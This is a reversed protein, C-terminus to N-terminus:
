SSCSYTRRVEAEVLAAPRAYRHRSTRRIIASRTRKEGLGQPSLTEMSFPRSPMGDVLLRMYATFKPLAMLDRPTLDGGLQDALREADSAGVQFVQLSGVNGFVAELTREDMQALYQNAITLNLRYKRAESLITAFSETAFNQFEDVYLFFDRRDQETVNARSMAALQVGTVLLSGLLNSGDEGIKGKSLNILLIAGADMVRRLDLSGRSQGIIARLVPHSLFQGIKNQIPAVAEAQFQPKWGAFEGEWFSKVVPDQLQGVIMRRYGGDALLRQLFLLSAGPIELLALLGNRLIHEMRPGWSEGYLKKFASVVGSAVLPRQEPQDCALPNYALPFERDGADFVIVDNTRRRPIHELIADALDGHPDVLALGRGARIDSLVLQHLLTTKGMGTKGIIALHRRRDDARIGFVERRQRFKLRGLVAIGPENSALPVRVPPEMERSETIRM